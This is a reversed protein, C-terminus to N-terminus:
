KNKKFTSFFSFISLIILTFVPFIPTKCFAIINIVVFGLLALRLIYLDKM